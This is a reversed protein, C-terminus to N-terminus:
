VSPGYDYGEEWRDEDIFDLEEFSLEGTLEPLLEDEDYTDPKGMFSLDLSACCGSNLESGACCEVLESSVNDM